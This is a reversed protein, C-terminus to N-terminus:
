LALDPGLGAFKLLGGPWCAASIQCPGWNRHLEPSPPNRRPEALLPPAEGEAAGPRLQQRAASHSPVPEPPISAPPTASEKRELAQTSKVRPMNEVPRHSHPHVPSPCSWSTLFPFHDLSTAVIEPQMQFGSHYHFLTPHDPTRPSAPQEAQPPLDAQREPHTVLM